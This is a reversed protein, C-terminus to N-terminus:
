AVRHDSRARRIEPTVLLFSYFTFSTIGECDAKAKALHRVSMKERDLELNHVM